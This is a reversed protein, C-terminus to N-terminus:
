RAMAAGGEINLQEVLSDMARRVAAEIDEKTLKGTDGGQITVTVQPSEVRVSRAGAGQAGRALGGLTVGPAQVLDRMAAQPEDANDTIGRSLGAVVNMGVDMM